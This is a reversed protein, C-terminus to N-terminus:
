TGVRRDAAETLGVLELVERARRRAAGRDLGHLRGILELLQRGTQTPDLGTEQLAVGIDRRIAPAESLLDHGTVHVTGPTPSLLTALMLVTTSKGAGNPGLLGYVEGNAVEFSVGDVAVVAGGSGEFTKALGEVEIASGSV